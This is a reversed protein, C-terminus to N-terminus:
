FCKMACNMFYILPKIQNKSSDYFICWIDFMLHIFDTAKLCMKSINQEVNDTSIIPFWEINKMNHVQFSSFLFWVFSLSGSDWRHKCTHIQLVRETWFGRMLLVPLKDTHRNLTPTLLVLAAEQVWEIVCRILDGAQKYARYEPTLFAARSWEYRGNEKSFKWVIDMVIGATQAKRGFAPQQIQIERKQQVGFGYASYCTWVTKRM